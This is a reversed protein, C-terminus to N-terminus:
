HFHLSVEYSSKLDTEKMIDSLLRWFEMYDLKVKDLDQLAKTTKDLETDFKVKDLMPVTCKEMETCISNIQEFKHKSKEIFKQWDAITNTYLKEMKKMDDISKEKKDELNKNIASYKEELEKKLKDIKNETFTINGVLDKNKSKMYGYKIKNLKENASEVTKEIQKKIKSNNVIIKDNSKVIEKSTYIKHENELRKEEAGNIEDTYKQYQCQYNQVEKQVKNSEEQTTNGKEVITSNEQDLNAKQQKIKTDSDKLSKHQKTSEAKGKEEFKKENLDFADKQKSIWGYGKDWTMPM